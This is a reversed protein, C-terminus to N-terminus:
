APALVVTHDVKVAWRFGLMIVGGHHQPDHPVPVDTITMVYSSRGAWAQRPIEHSITDM